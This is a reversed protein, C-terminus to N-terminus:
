LTEDTKSWPPTRNMLDILGQSPPPPNEIMEQLKDYDEQSVYITHLDELKEKFFFVQNVRYTEGFYQDNEINMGHHFKLADFLIMRNFKPEFTKILEYDSKNRWPKYHEPYKEYEKQYNLQNYLNTGNVSDDKNLYLIGTYGEDLHPWWYNNHYDNFISKNFRTFNTIVLNNGFASKQDCINSLFNYVKTVHSKKMWHRRDDFYIQNYSPKRNKKHIPPEISFFSELVKEPTQYFNDITYLFSGLFEEKQITCNENIQFIDVTSIRM